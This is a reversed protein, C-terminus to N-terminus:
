TKLNLKLFDQIYKKSDLFSELILPSIELTVYRNKILSLFFNLNYNGKGLPLHADTTNNIIGDCVHFMLPKFKMLRLIFKKYDENKNLSSIYAHSFDLLFECKVKKLIYEIEEPTSFIGIVPPSINTKAFTKSLSTNFISNEVLLKVNYKKSFNKLLRINNIITRRVTEKDDQLSCYGAHTIIHKAGIENAFIISKEFLKMNNENPNEKALNVGKGIHPGHIVWRTDLSLLKPTAVRVETYYVEIFDMVETLKKILNWREKLLGIKAGIKM